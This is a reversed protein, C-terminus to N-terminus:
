TTYVDSILEESEVISRGNFIKKTMAEEVSNVEAIKYDTNDKRIYVWFTRRKEPVIVYEVGELTFAVASLLYEDLLEKIEDVM